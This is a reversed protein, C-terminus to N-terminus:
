HGVKIVKTDCAFDHFGRKKPSLAIAIFGLGIPLLSLYYAFYRAFSRAYTLGSGDVRTIKLGLMAKGVTKGWTGVAVTFYAVEIVISIWFDVWSTETLIEGVSADSFALILGVGVITLVLQDISYAWFRVWFGAPSGAARATPHIETPLKAGCKYCYASASENITACAPCIKKGSQPLEQGQAAEDSRSESTDM